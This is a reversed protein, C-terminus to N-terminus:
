DVIIIYDVISSYAVVAFFVIILFSFVHVLCFLVDINGKEEAGPGTPLRLNFSTKSVDRLTIHFSGVSVLPM